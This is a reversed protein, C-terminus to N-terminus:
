YAQRYQYLSMQLSGCVRRKAKKCDGCVGTKRKQSIVAKEEPTYRRKPRKIRPPPTTPSIPDSPGKPCKRKSGRTTRPPGQRVENDSVNSREGYHSNSSVKPTPKWNPSLHTPPPEDPSRAFGQNDSSQMGYRMLPPDQAFPLSGLTGDQVGQTQHQFLSARSYHSVDQYSTSDIDALDNRGNGIPWSFSDLSLNWDGTTGAEPPNVQWDGTSMHIASPSSMELNSTQLRPRGGVSSHRGTGSPERQSNRRAHGLRHLGVEPSLTTLSRRSLLHHRADSPNVASPAEIYNGQQQFASEFSGPYEGTQLLLTRWPEYGQTDDISHSTSSQSSYDGNEYSGAGPSREHTGHLQPDQFSGLLEVNAGVHANPSRVRSHPLGPFQLQGQRPARCRPIENPYDDMRPRM